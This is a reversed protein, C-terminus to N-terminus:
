QKEPESSLLWNQALKEAKLVTFKNLKGKLIYLMNNTISKKEILRSVFFWKYAKKINQHEYYHISGLNYAARWNMRKASKQYYTKAKNLDKKGLDGTHYIYGLEFLAYPNNKECAKLFHEYSIRKNEEVGIGHKHMFGLQIHADVVGAQTLNKLINVALKYEGHSYLNIASEISKQDKTDIEEYALASGALMLSLFLFCITVTNAYIEKPLM